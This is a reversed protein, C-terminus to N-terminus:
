AFPTSLLKSCKAFSCDDDLYCMGLLCLCFMDSAEEHTGADLHATQDPEGRRPDFRNGQSNFMRNALVEWRLLKAM